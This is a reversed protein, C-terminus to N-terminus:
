GSFGALFAAANEAKRTPRCEYLVIPHETGGGTRYLWMYCKSRATQGELKLVQLTTENAHLVQRQLFRRHLEEYVPKLWDEAARLAWNSMTQRNM